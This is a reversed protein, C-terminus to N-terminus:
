SKKAFEALLSLEQATPVQIDFLCQLTQALNKKFQEPNIPCNVVFDTHPRSKRYDPMDIPMKLYRSILNLDFDYLITGHHLIANKGRRQANGSIKKDDLTTIDSIPRFQAKMGCQALADIVQASIWEYSRRLDNLQPRDNKSLVFTYNLCGPGQVVTGGGSSRRLVPIGEKRTMDEAIDIEAKGIRGLVIFYTPSEWFRLFEGANEKDALHWLADDYLLNDSPKSFSHDRLQM